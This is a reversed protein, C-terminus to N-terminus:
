SWRPDPSSLELECLEDTAAGSILYSKRQQPPAAFLNWTKNCAQSFLYLFVCLAQFQKSFHPQIV